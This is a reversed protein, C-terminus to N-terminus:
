GNAQEFDKNKEQLFKTFDFDKAIGSDFGKQVEDRLRQIKMEHEELLRLGARIVDSMSGYNGTEIQSNVFQELQGDLIISTNKSMDLRERKATDEVIGNFPIDSSFCLFPIKMGALVARLIM